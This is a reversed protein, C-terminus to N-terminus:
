SLNRTTFIFSPGLFPVISARQLYDVLIDAQQQDSVAVSSTGTPQGYETIWVKKNSDGRGAVINYVNPVIAARGLPDETIKHPFTYPHLAVADFYPRRYHVVTGHFQEPSVGTATPFVGGVLM